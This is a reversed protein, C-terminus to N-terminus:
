HASGSSACLFVHMQSYLLMNRSTGYPRPPREKTALPHVRKIEISESGFILASKHALRETKHAATSCATACHPEAIFLQTNACYHDALKMTVSFDHHLSTHPYCWPCDPACTSRPYTVRTCVCRASCASAAVLSADRHLPM